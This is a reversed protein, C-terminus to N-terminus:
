RSRHAQRKVVKSGRIRMERRQEEERARRRRTRTRVVAEPVIVVSLAILAAVAIYVVSAVEPPATRTLKFGPLAQQLHAYESGALTRAVTEVESQPATMGVFELVQSRDFQYAVVVEYSGKGSASSFVSGKAGPPSDLSLPGAYKFQSSQLGNRSLFTTAAQAQAKGADAPNPLLSVLLSASDNPSAPSTWGVSYAGTDHPFRKTDTQVITYPSAGAAMVTASAPKANFGPPPTSQVLRALRASQVESHPIFVAFGIGALILVGIAISLPILRSRRM